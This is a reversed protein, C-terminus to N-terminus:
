SGSQARAAARKEIEERTLDEIHTAIWWLNGCSDRVGANRDGYFQDAPEMVSTAGAELARKYTADADRVYIYLGAPMAPWNEGGDGLMITSDGVRMEAHGVKGGPAPLFEKVEADFAAKLFEIVKSAGDVILYPTVTHYGEPIHSVAKTMLEGKM